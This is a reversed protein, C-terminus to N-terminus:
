TAAMQQMAKEDIQMHLKEGYPCPIYRDGYPNALFGHAVAQFWPAISDPLDRFLKVIQRGGPAVERLARSTADGALPNRPQALACVTSTPRCGRGRRSGV